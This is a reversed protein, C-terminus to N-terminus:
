RAMWFPLTAAMISCSSFYSTRRWSFSRRASPQDTISLAAACPLVPIIPTRAANPQLTWDRSLTLIPAAATIRKRRRGPERAFAGRRGKWCCKRAPRCSVGVGQLEPQDYRHRLRVRHGRRRCLCGPCWRGCPSACPRLARAGAHRCQGAQAHPPRRWRRHRSFASIGVSSKHARQSRKPQEGRGQRGHGHQHGCLLRMTGLIVRM